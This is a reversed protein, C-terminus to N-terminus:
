NNQRLITGLALIAGINMKSTGPQEGREEGTSLLLSGVEMARGTAAAWPILLRGDPGETTGETATDQFDRSEIARGGERERRGM